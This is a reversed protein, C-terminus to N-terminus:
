RSAENNLEILESRWKYTELAGKRLNGEKVAQKLIPLYKQRIQSDGQHHLVLWITSLGEYGVKEKAPFGKRLMREVKMLNISYLENQKDWLKDLEVKNIGREKMGIRYRQDDERILRLGEKLKIDFKTSDLKKLKAIKKQYEIEKRTQYDILKQKGLKKECLKYTEIFKM